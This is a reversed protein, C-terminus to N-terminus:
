SKIKHNEDSTKVKLYSSKGIQVKSVMPQSESACDVDVCKGQSMM